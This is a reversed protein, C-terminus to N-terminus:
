GYLGGLVQTNFLYSFILVVFLTIFRARTRQGLAEQQTLERKLKRQLRRASLTWIVNSAPFFLLGALVLISILQYLQPSTM